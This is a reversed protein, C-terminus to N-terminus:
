RITMLYIVYSAKMKCYNFRDSIMSALHTAVDLTFKNGSDFDKIDVLQAM